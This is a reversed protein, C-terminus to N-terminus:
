FRGGANHHDQGDKAPEPEKQEPLAAGRELRRGRHQRQGRGASAQNKIRRIRGIKKGKHQIGKAFVFGEGPAGNEPILRQTLDPLGRKETDAREGIPLRRAKLVIDRDEAGGVALRHAREVVEHQLNQHHQAGRPQRRHTKRNDGGKSSRQCCRWRKAKPKEARNEQQHKERKKAGREKPRM